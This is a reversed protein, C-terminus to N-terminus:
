IEIVLVQSIAWMVYISPHLKATAPESKEIAPNVTPLVPATPSKPDSRVIDASMREKENEVGM